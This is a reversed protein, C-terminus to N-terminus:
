ASTALSSPCLYSSSPLVLSFSSLKTKVTQWSLLNMKNSPASNFSSYVHDIFPPGHYNQPGCVANLAEQLDAFLDKVDKADEDVQQLAWNVRSMASEGHENDPTVTREGKLVDGLQDQIQQLVGRSNKFLTALTTLEDMCTLYDKVLDVSAGRKFQEYRKRKQAADM